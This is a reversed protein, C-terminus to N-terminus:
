LCFFHILSVARNKNRRQLCFILPLGMQEDDLRGELERWKEPNGMELLKQMDELRWYRGNLVTLKGEATMGSRITRLQSFWHFSKKWHWAEKTPMIMKIRPLAPLFKWLRFLARSFFPYKRLFLNVSILLSGRWAWMVTSETLHLLTISYHSAM